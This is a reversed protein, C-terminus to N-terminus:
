SWLLTSWMTNARHLRVVVEPFLTYVRPTNVTHVCQQAQHLQDVVGWYWFPWRRICTCTNVPPPQVLSSIASFLLSLFSSQRANTCFTGVFSPKYQTHLRYTGYSVQNFCKDIHCIHRSAIPLRWPTATGKATHDASNWGARQKSTFMQPTIPYTHM